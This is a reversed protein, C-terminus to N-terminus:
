NNMILQKARLMSSASMSFEDLGYEVLTPIAREDGAMEGCMGCWKGEKHASEITMKILKLVAPHLPNYLYSVKENMRDAALTYQILDNTGISFFDVYKALEESNVAAAPIEVMIGVEMDDRYQIGEKKLEEACEKLIEKAKLYEELSSIMPFMIKLNGYVAARLLARLQVKFIDTRDLCLRIARYGLFPNMEEPMPLYSLKKDGGIDLTRIVVPRPNMKEVAFKYSEYQEEETPMNDRDMYLFETRFLGVGDGGNEIVKLVDSPKGINGAVEVHKGAKTVTKVEILKKLEEKEKEYAEKKNMYEKLTAEDPNIIAVGEVGDVIIKDGEKVEKTIDKMGVIAPIELTRSMIASHSTRGGINTLFAVVKNKDLQATDSPTLDHAVIVTNEQLNALGDPNKGVLNALIRHGVDKVDAGRERMYEDEMSAFIGSYMEVVDSLAKEANVKNDEINTKVAGTFEPDDLLMMHSEFVAAKDKGLEKEAKEKIKTLQERTTNLAKELKAQESVIDSVTREVISIESDDKIVVNGIAYGKSAAIGKKM